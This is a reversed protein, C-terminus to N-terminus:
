AANDPTTLADVDATRYRVTGGIRVPVLIADREWNTLTSRSVRLLDATERVTLM